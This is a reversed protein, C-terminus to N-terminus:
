DHRDMVEDASQDTGFRRCERRVTFVFFPNAAATVTVTTGLTYTDSPSVTVVGGEAPSATLTLVYPPLAEFNATVTQNADM